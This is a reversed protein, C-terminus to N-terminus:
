IEDTSVVPLPPAKKTSDVPPEDISIENRPKEKRSRALNIFKKKVFTLSVARNEAEPTSKYDKMWNVKQIYCTARLAQDIIFTEAEENWIKGVWNKAVRKGLKDFTAVGYSPYSNFGYKSAYLILYYDATEMKAIPHYSHAIRSFYIVNTQLVFQEIMDSSRSELKAAAIM